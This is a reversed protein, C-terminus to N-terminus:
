RLDSCKLKRRSEIREIYLLSIFLGLSVGTTVLTTDTGKSFTLSYTGWALFGLVMLLLKEKNKKNM